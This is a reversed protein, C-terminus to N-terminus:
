RQEKSLQRLMTFTYIGTSCGSTFQIQLAYRGISKLTMARVNEKVTSADLLPRGTKEDVCNACPCAKQLTSLRFFQQQDDSWVISFTYNDVQKIEKILIPISSM